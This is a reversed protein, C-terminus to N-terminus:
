YTNCCQGKDQWEFHHWSWTKVTTTDFGDFRSLARENDPHGYLRHSVYSFRGRRDNSEATSLDGLGVVSGSPHSHWAGAVGGEAGEPVPGANVLSSNYQTTPMTFYWDGDSGKYIRAGIEIGYEESLSHLREDLFFAVDHEFKFEPPNEIAEHIKDLISKRLEELRENNLAQSFAGTIAGNAFKGGTIRSATGGIAAGIAVRLPSFGLRGIHQSNNFSTGLATFGASAFGHGFKGGRLVNTIGGVTGHLAVKLAFGSRSLGAAFGGGFHTGLVNGIGSFAAASIGSLFGSRLAQEFSAGQLLADGFSAAGFVAAATYWTITQQAAVYALASLTFIFHGSPDTYALPNNLVYSYRNHNQLNSPFQVYPDAQLFRALTPDYIRGNMHVLGVEDLMEHNTFGRTTACHDFNVTAADTLARWTAANRRRGWADFSMEQDINGMADTLVDVGGLHDRLVYRVANQDSAACGGDASGITEIVVGGIHRKIQTVNNPRTIKEVSGIYLTTTTRTTADAGTGQTVTDTRKFRARHPGYAFATTHNAKVISSPKDFATYAIARGDSSATNNGNADYTYTIQTNDAQTVSAVAHPGATTDLPAGTDSGYAYTGVGSKSRINGYADYTVTDVGTLRGPDTACLAQTRASAQSTLRSRTLRNLDDHCFEETRTTGDRTRERSTLNGLVDWDYELHQPTGTMTHTSRIGRVRGTRTDFRHGRVVGNGLREATVSGRADMATITRYIRRSAFTGRDDGAGVADRLQAFYGNANHVHRVGNRTYDASTRSADFVQFTRGYADYTTKEYHIANGAGPATEVTSLRGFADYALTRRYGSKADTTERLQGLGNAATDYRWAADAELSAARAATLKACGAGAHARYDQRVITRGLGDRRMVTFHGAASQRCTLKGLANYRYGSTGKDPDTMGTKRGADDYTM